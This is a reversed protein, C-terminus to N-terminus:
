EWAIHKSNPLRSKTEYGDFRRATLQYRCKNNSILPHSILFKRTKALRVFIPPRPSLLYLTLTPTWAQKKATEVLSYLNASAEAGQCLVDVSKRSAKREQLTEYWANLKANKQLDSLRLSM